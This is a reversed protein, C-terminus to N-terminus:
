ASQSEWFRQGLSGALIVEPMLGIGFRERVAARARRMLTLVDEATAGGLNVIVNAHKESIQAGGVRLGKLGCADILRGAHDGEPNKFISGVNPKGSPLSAWRKKNLENIRALARAGDGRELQFTAALVLEGTEEIRTRRYGPDLAGTPVSAIVGQRDVLTATVLVDKVETGYCGANMRVAGGVSSPFGSLAELGLLNQRATQQALRALPVAAGAIVQEGEIHWEALEGALRLVIGALGEDPFFVNSGLGLVFFACGTRAALRVVSAAAQESHATVLFEAAGGIRLTSSRALPANAEVELDAIAELDARRVTGAPDEAGRPSDGRNRETTSM